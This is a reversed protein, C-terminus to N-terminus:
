FHSYGIHEHCVILELIDTYSLNGIGTCVTIQARLKINISNYTNDASKQWVSLESM